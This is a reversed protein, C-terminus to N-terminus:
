RQPLMWKDLAVLQGQLPKEDNRLSVFTRKSSDQRKETIKSIERDCLIAAL